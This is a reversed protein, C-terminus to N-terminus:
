CDSRKTIILRVGLSDRAAAVARLAHSVPVQAACEPPWRGLALHVDEGGVNGSASGNQIRGREQANSRAGYLTVEGVQPRPRTKRGFLQDVCSSSGSPEDNRTQLERLSVDGLDLMSSVLTLTPGNELVGRRVASWETILYDLRTAFGLLTAAEFARAM